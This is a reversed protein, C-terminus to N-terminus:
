LGWKERLIRLVDLKEHDIPYTFPDCEEAPNESVPARANGGATQNEGGDAPSGASGDTPPLSEDGTTNVM